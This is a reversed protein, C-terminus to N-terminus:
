GGATLVADGLLLSRGGVILPPQSVSGVGTLGESSLVHQSCVSLRRPHLVWLPWAQIGVGVMLPCIHM